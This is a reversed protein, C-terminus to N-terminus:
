LDKLYLEKVHDIFLFDLKTDDRACQAIFDGSFGHYCVVRDTVGAQYIFSRKVAEGMTNPDVSHLVANQQLMRAFRITSYGLYAGLEAAVKPAKQRFAADVIAGKVDGLNMTPERWCFEDIAAVVGDADGRKTNGM